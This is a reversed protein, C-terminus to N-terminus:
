QLFEAAYSLVKYLKKSANRLRARMLQVCTLMSMMYCKTFKLSLPIVSKMPARSTAPKGGFAYSLSSRHVSVTLTTLLLM